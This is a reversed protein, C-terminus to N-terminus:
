KKNKRKTKKKPMYDIRATNLLDGDAESAPQGDLVPDEKLPGSEFNREPRFRGFLKGRMNAQSRSRNQVDKLYRKYLKPSMQPGAVNKELEEVKQSAESEMTSVYDFNKYMPNYALNSHMMHVQGAYDYYNSLEKFHKDDENNEFDFYREGGKSVMQMADQQFRIHKEFDTSTGMQPAVDEPHLQTMLRGYTKETHTMDQYLIKKYKKMAEDFRKNAELQEKDSLGKKKPAMLDDIFAEMEEAGMNFGRGRDTKLDAFVRAIGLGAIDVPTDPAEQDNVGQIVPNAPRSVNSAWTEDYAFDKSKEPNGYKQELREGLGDLGPRNPIEPIEGKVNSFTLDKSRDIKSQDMILGSKNRVKYTQAKKGFIKSFGPTHTRTEWQSPDLKDFGAYDATAYMGNYSEGEKQMQKVQKADADRKKAQMPGAVSPSPSANSIAHTVPGTYLVTQLPAHERVPPTYNKVASLDGFTRAMRDQMAAGLDFSLTAAPMARNPIQPAKDVNNYATDVRPPLMTRQSLVSASNM